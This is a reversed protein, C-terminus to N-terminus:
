APRYATHSTRTRKVSKIPRSHQGEHDSNPVYNADSDDDEDDNRNRKGLTPSPPPPANRTTHYVSQSTRRTQRGNLPALPTRGIASSYPAASTGPMQAPAYGPYQSQQPQMSSQHQTMRNIDTQAPFRHSPFAPSQRQQYHNGPHVNEQGNGIENSTLGAMHNNATTPPAARGKSAAPANTAKAGGKHARPKRTSTTKGRGKPAPPNAQVQVDNLASQGSAAEAAAEEAAEAEKGKKINKAKIENNEVNDKVRGEIKQPRGIITMLRDGRLMDECTRKCHTLLVVMKDLREAFTWDKTKKIDKETGKDYVSYHWGNIHLDIMSHLIRWALKEFQQLSYYEADPGWRNKFKSTHTKDVVDVTHRIARVLNKVAEQKDYDSAPISADNPSSPFLGTVHDNYDVEAINRFQLEVHIVPVPGQQANGAQDNGDVQGDQGTSTKPTPQDHPYVEEPQPLTATYTQGEPIPYPQSGHPVQNHLSHYVRIDTITQHTSPDLAGEFAGNHFGQAFQYGPQQGETSVPYDYLNPNWGSLTAMTEDGNNSYLQDFPTNPDFSANPDFAINHDVFMPAGSNLLSNALTNDQYGTVTDDGGLRPDINRTSPEFPSAHPHQGTWAPGTPLSASNGDQFQTADLEGFLSRDLDNSDVSPVPSTSQSM